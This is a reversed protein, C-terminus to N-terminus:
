PSRPPTTPTVGPSSGDPPPTPQTQAPAASPQETTTRGTPTPTEPMLTINNVVSSVGQVHSAVEGARDKQAQTGVFGSLQVVGSYTHVGVSSYKYTADSELAQEVNETLHKDDMARGESRGGYTNQDSKCGTLGGLTALAATVSAFILIRWNRM